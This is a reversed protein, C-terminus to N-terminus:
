TTDDHRSLNSKSCTKWSIFTLVHCMEMVHISCNCLQLPTFFLIKFSSLTTILNAGPFELWSFPVDSFLSLELGITFLQWLSSKCYEKNSKSNGEEFWSFNYLSRGRGWCNLSTWPWALTIHIEENIRLWRQLFHSPRLDPSLYHYALGPSVRVVSCATGILPTKSTLPLSWSEAIPSDPLVQM